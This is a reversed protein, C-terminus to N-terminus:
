AEATRGALRRDLDAILSENEGLVRREVGLAWVQVALAIWFLVHHAMAPVTGAMLAGGLVLTAIALAMALLLPPWCRRQFGRVLDLVSPEVGHERVVEAIARGTAFLYLLIWCHAFLLVLSSALAALVHRPVAPDATGHLPYGLAAAAALGVAALVGLVLLARGMM